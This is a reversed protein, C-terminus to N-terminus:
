KLFATAKSTTTLLLPPPRPPGAASALAALFRADVVAVEGADARAGALAPRLVAAAFERQRRAPSARADLALDLGPHGAWLAADTLGADAAAHVAADRPRRAADAPAKRVRLVRGRLAPSAGVHEFVVHAGGEALYRWEGAAVAGLLEPASAAERAAM